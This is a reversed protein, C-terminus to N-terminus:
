YKKQLFSVREKNTLNPNKLEPYTHKISYVNRISNKLITRVDPYKTINHGSEKGIYNTLLDYLIQESRNSFFYKEM